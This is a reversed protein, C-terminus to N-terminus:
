SLTSIRPLLLVINFNENVYNKETNKIVSLQDLLLKRLIKNINSILFVLSLRRGKKSFKGGCTLYFFVSFYGLIYM